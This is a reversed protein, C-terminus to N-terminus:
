KSTIFLLAFMGAISGSVAAVWCATLLLLWDKTRVAHRSMEFVIAFLPLLTITGIILLLNTNNMIKLLTFGGGQIELIVAVVFGGGQIELIVAVV